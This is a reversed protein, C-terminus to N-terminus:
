YTIESVEVYATVDDGPFAAGPVAVRLSESVYRIWRKKRLYLAVGGAMDIIIHAGPALIMWDAPFAPVAAIAYMVPQSPDNNNLSVHSSAVAVTTTRDGAAGVVLSIDEQGRIECRM